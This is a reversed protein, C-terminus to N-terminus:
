MLENHEPFDNVNYNYTAIRYISDTKLRPGYETINRIIYYVFVKYLYGGM